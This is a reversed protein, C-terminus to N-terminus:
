LNMPTTLYDAVLQGNYSYQQLLQLKGNDRKQASASSRGDNGSAGNKVQAGAYQIKIGIDQDAVGTWAGQPPSVRYVRLDGQFAGTSNDFSFINHCIAVGLQSLVHGNLARVAKECAITTQADWDKPETTLNRNASTSTSPMPVSSSSSPAQRRQLGNLVKDTHGHVHTELEHGRQHRRYLQGVGIPAHGFTHGLAGLHFLLFVLGLVSLRMTNAKSRCLKLKSISLRFLVKDLVSITVSRIDRQAPCSLPLSCSDFSSGALPAFRSVLQDETRSYHRRGVSCSVGILCAAM